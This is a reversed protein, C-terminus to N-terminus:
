RSMENQVTTAIYSKDVVPDFYTLRLAQINVASPNLHNRVEVAREQNM